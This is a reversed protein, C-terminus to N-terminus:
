TTCVVSLQCSLKIRARLDGTKRFYYRSLAASTVGILVDNVTQCFWVGYSLRVYMGSTWNNIISQPLIIMKCV